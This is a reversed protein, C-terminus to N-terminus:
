MEGKDEEEKEEKIQIQVYEEGTIGGNSTGNEGKKESYLLRTL